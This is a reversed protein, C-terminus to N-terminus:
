HDLYSEDSDYSDDYDLYNKLKIHDISKSNITKAEECKLLKEYIRKNLKYSSNVINIITQTNQMFKEVNKHRERLERQLSAENKKREADVEFIRKVCKENHYAVNPNVKLICESEQLVRLYKSRMNKVIRENYAKTMKVKPDLLDKKIDNHRVDKRKKGQEERNKEEEIIKNYQKYFNFNSTAHRPFHLIRKKIKSTYEEINSIKQELCNLPSCSRSIRSRSNSVSKKFIKSHNPGLQFPKTYPLHITGLTTGTLTTSLKLTNTLNSPTTSNGSKNSENTAFYTNEFLIKKKINRSQQIKKRKEYQRALRDGSVDFLLSKPNSTNKKNTTLSYLVNLNRSVPSARKKLSINTNKVNIKFSNGTKSLTSGSQTNEVKPPSKRDVNIRIIKLKKM